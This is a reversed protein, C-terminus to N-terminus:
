IKKGYQGVLLSMSTHLKLSLVAAQSNVFEMELVLEETTLYAFHGIVLIYKQRRYVANM